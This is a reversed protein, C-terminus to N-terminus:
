GTFSALVLLLSLSVRLSIGMFISDTLASSKM